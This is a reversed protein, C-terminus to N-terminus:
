FDRRLIPCPIKDDRNAQCTEWDGTRLAPQGGRARNLWSRRDAHMRFLQGLSLHDRELTTIGTERPVMLNTLDFGTLGDTHGQPSTELPPDWLAMVHALEHALSAPAHMLHSLVIVPTGDEPNCTHGRITNNIGFKIQEAYVVNIFNPQVTVQLQDELTDCARDGGFQETMGNWGGLDEEIRFTIGAMRRYSIKTARKVDDGADKTAAEESASSRYWVVLGVELMAPLDAAAYKVVDAGDTWQAALDTSCNPRNAPTTNDKACQFLPAHGPAFIAVKNLCGPRLNTGLWARGAVTFFRDDGGACDVTGVASNADLLVATALGDISPPLELQDVVAGLEDTPKILITAPASTVSGMKVTIDAVTANPATVFTTDNTKTSFSVSGTWSAAPPTGMPDGNPHRALAILRIKTGPLAHVVSPIITVTISSGDPQGSARLAAVVV